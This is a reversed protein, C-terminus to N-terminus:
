PRRRRKADTIRQHMSPLPSDRKPGDTKPKEPVEGYEEPLSRLFSQVLGILVIALTTVAANGVYLLAIGVAGLALLAIRKWNYRSMPAVRSVWLPEVTFGVVLPVLFGVDRHTPICFRGARGRVSLGDAM